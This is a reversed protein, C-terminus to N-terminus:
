RTASLTAPSFCSCPRWQEVFTLTQSAGGQVRVATLRGESPRHASATTGTRDKQFM